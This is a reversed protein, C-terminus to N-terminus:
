DMYFVDTKAGEMAVVDINGDSCSVAIQAPTGLDYSEKFSYRSDQASTSLTFVLIISLLTFCTKMSKPNVWILSGLLLIPQM